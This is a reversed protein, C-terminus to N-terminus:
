LKLAWFVMGAATAQLWGYFFWSMIMAITVDMASFNIWMSPLTATFAYILGLELGKHWGTWRLKDGFRVWFWALVVAMLFPHIFFLGARQGGPWFIPNYFEEMLEPLWQIGAFLILYSMVLLVAGALLIAIVRKKM